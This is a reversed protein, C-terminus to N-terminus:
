EGLRQFEKVSPDAPAPDPDVGGSGDGRSASRADVVEQVRRTMEDHARIMSGALHTLGLFGLAVIAPVTPLVGAAWLSLVVVGALLALLRLWATATTHRARPDKDQTGEPSNM